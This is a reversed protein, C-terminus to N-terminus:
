IHAGRFNSSIHQETIHIDFYIAPSIGELKFRPLGLVAMGFLNVGSFSSQLLCCTPCKLFCPCKKTRGCKRRNTHLSIPDDGGM